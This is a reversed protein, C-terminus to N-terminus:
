LLAKENSSQETSAREARIKELLYDVVHFMQSRPLYESAQVRYRGDVILQPTGSIQYARGKRPGSEFHQQRLRPSFRM